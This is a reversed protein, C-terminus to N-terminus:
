CCSWCPVLGDYRPLVRGDISLSRFSSSYQSLEVHDELWMIVDDTTWNYVALYSLGLCKILKVKLTFGSQTLYNSCPLYNSEDCHLSRKYRGMKLRYRKLCLSKVSFHKCVLVWVSPSSASFVYRKGKKCFFKTSTYRKDPRFFWNM